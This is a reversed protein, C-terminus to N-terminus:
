LYKEFLEQNDLFFNVQEFTIFERFEKSELMEVIETHTLIRDVQGWKDLQTIETKLYKYLISLSLLKNIRSKFLENISYEYREETYVEDDQFLTSFDFLISVLESRYNLLYKELENAYKRTIVPLNKDNVVKEIDENHIFFYFEVVEAISKGDDEFFENMFCSLESVAKQFNSSKFIPELDSKEIINVLHIHTFDQYKSLIKNMRVYENNLKEYINDSVLFQIFFVIYFGVLIVQYTLTSIEASISNVGIIADGYFEIFLVGFVTIVGGYILYTVIDQYFIIITLAVFFMIYTFLSNTSNVYYVTLITITLISTHMALRNFNVVTFILTIGLLFLFLLPVIIDFVSEYDRLSSIPVTLVVFVILFFNVISVKLRLVENFTLFESNIIKYFFSRLM